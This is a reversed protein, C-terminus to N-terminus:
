LALCTNGFTGDGCRSTTPCCWGENSNPAQCCMTAGYCCTQFCCQPNGLAGQPCSVGRGPCCISGSGFCNYGGSHTSDPCCVTDPSCCRTGCLINTSGCSTCQGNSCTQGSSCCVSGCPTEGSPCNPVCTGNSCIQDTACCTEGCCTEGSSCCTVGGCPTTGSSCTICSGNSCITGPPCCTSTTGSECFTQGPACTCTGNVCSQGCPCCRNGCAEGTGSCDLCQSTSGQCQSLASRIQNQAACIKGLPTTLSVNGSLCSVLSCVVTTGLFALPNSPDLLQSTTCAGTGLCAALLPKDCNATQATFDCERTIPPCQEGYCNDHQFCTENLCAAYSIYTSSIYGNELSNGPGCYNVSPTSCINTTSAVTASLSTQAQIATQSVAGISATASLATQSQIATLPIASSGLTCGLMSEVLFLFTQFQKPDSWAEPAASLGLVSATQVQQQVAVSTSSCSNSPQVISGCSQQQDTPVGRGFQSVICGSCSETILSVDQAVSVSGAVNSVYQGHNRYKTPDPFALQISKQVAGCSSSGVGGASTSTSGAWLRGIGTHTVLAGFLTRSAISLMNRRSVATTLRKSLDDIFHEM